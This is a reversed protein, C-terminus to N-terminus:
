KIILKLIFQGKNKRNKSFDLIEIKSIWKLSKLEKVWSNIPLSSESNGEILISNTDFLIKEFNKIRKKIPNVQISTLSVTNPVSNVISYLYYSLFAQKIIGSEQLILAKNQKEVELKKVQNFTNNLNYLQSEHSIYRSKYHGLLLYSALLSTLFFFGIFVAVANVIKKLKLEKKHVAIFDHEYEINEAPYVHQLLTSFLPVQLPNIKEEGFIYTETDTENKAYDILVTDEFILQYDGSLIVSQHILNKAMIGIFPGISYDIILYKNDKFQKFFTDIVEKRAIAIFKNKDQLIEYIYFDDPSANFLVEKLYNRDALVKKHIIGKGSFNFLIPTNTDIKSKVVEYDQTQFSSTISFNEKNKLVLMVEYTPTDSIRVGVIAFKTEQFLNINKITKLM